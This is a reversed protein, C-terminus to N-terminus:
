GTMNEVMKCFVETINIEFISSGKSVRVKVPIIKNLNKAPIEEGHIEVFLRNVAKQLALIYEAIRYDILEDWSEGQIEIKVVLNNDFKLQDIDITELVGDAGIKLLDDLSKVTIM